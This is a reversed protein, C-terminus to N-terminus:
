DATSASGEGPESGEDMRSFLTALAPGSVNHWVSFLAPVLAASAGFHATALAVALGSNQLGVEFACTRARDESMGSARGIGYGSRLGLGNHLVVALFVVLGASLITTVNLGVVAAIIAVIAVVSVAPFISVGARAVAPAYRDLVYRLLLGGVVPLLVVQVISTAMEAFTVSISEGALLVIWAPMVVPAAVTTVSTITVSLAVDGRGLYTMVNSATGGPAAGVLVLGVGIEPPLGLLAVLGYAFLPMLLWQSAAGVFVDRPREVVRRFDAPTLTLGMGLMIVGLLPTIYPAIPTFTEPSYLALPAVAVVWLVFYESTFDGVRELTTQLSM